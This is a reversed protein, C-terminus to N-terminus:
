RLIQKRSMNWSTGLLSGSVECFAGLFDRSLVWFLEWLAGLLSGSREWFAGLLFLNEWHQKLAFVSGCSSFFTEWHQKKGFVFGQSSVLRQNM